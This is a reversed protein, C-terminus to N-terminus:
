FNAVLSVSVNRGAASVGSAFEIYHEDMINDLRAQVSLNENFDYSGNVGVTLWSPSGYYRDAFHTANPDVIPTLEVNDIGETFNFDEIDKKSNFRIDAGLQLKEKQYNFEFQGFLPPISSLPEETDYTRGKTYTVFGSTTWNKTLRGFYNATYGFIYATGKNQNTVANGSEGNFTVATLLGNAGYVFDRQIYHDLLTYYMNFGIKFKRENFYKLIGIESNYAFEPKVHINPITINGAKERIRAVDDINPSRFGSSLVANLQWNINPKYIYGLTATIASNNSTMMATNTQFFSQDIWNATMNINTFRVGTNLTSKPSVNQRYGVYLSSTLFDSGGDPYRTSIDFTNSFGDLRGNSINLTQGFATSRVDNHAFEFGYSFVRKRDETLPVSFDGNISFIDVNENRTSRNLSGFRRQIRQEKINQYAATISGKDLWNKGPHLLFQTSVLLRNQPGYEWEAFKLSSTDTLDTLEILRDFRPINSSTSYQINIKLDTNKSLPVFFKQLVDTQTYGTNRLLNPQNNVTPNEKYNNGSNESYYYVQGWDAFGHSRRNGARLDGFESYSISTFSAWTPSSIEAAYNSTVEQNVTSFRGFFQSKVEKTETLKPTKTYYHIVGGLADSGYMVSSPGFVVEMKDLLNPTITISNQLHGKRYIANNMRVGDVVLLIRNSEMGRIVPSGGGFQSKQVKVGPVTALLDASTQPSVKAIREINVLEIREAIRKSKEDNKFSSLVIEDLQESSKTLYVVFNQKQIKSKKVRLTAYSLHSFVVIENLKFASISVIGDDNSSLNIDFSSNFVTVNRVVKGTEKDFIKVEQAFSVCGILLLISCLFNKMM